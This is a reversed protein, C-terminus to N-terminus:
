AAVVQYYHWYKKSRADAYTKKDRDFYTGKTKEHVDLYKKLIDPRGKYFKKVEEIDDQTQFIIWFDINSRLDKPIVLMSHFVFVVINRTHYTRVLQNLLRGDQGGQMRIYSTAEEFIINCSAGTHSAERQIANLFNEKTNEETFANEYDNYEHNINYIYNERFGWPKLIKREIFSSKGAGKRAIIVFVKGTM